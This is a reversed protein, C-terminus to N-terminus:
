LLHWFFETSPGHSLIERWLDAHFAMFPSFLRQVLNRLVEHSTCPLHVLDGELIKWSRLVLVEESIEFFTEISSAFAASIKSPRKVFDRRLDRYTTACSKQLSRRRYAETPKQKWPGRSREKCCPPALGTYLIEACSRTLHRARRLITDTDRHHTL